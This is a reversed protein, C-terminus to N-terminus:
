AMDSAVATPLDPQMVGIAVGDGDHVRKVDIAILDYIFLLPTCTENRGGERGEKERERARTYVKVHVYM